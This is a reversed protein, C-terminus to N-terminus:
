RWGKRLVYEVFKLFTPHGSRRCLIENMVPNIVENGFKYFGEIPDKIQSKDCYDAFRKKWPELPFGYRCELERWVLRINAEEFYTASPPSPNQWKM